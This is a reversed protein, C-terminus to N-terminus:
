ALAGFLPTPKLALEPRLISCMYSWGACADGENDNEVMWGLSHCKEITLKKADKGKLNRRGLFHYRIDGVDCRRRRMRPLHITAACEIIAPLGNLVYSTDVNTRGIKFSSAMPSEYAYVDPSYLQCFDEAWSMANVFIRGHSDGKKGFRLSGFTPACGPMGFAVGMNTAIDCFWVVGNFKSEEHM